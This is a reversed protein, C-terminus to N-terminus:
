SAEVATAKTNSHNVTFSIGGLGQAAIGVAKLVFQQDGAANPASPLCEYTFYRAEGVTPTNNGPIGCTGGGAVTSYRRNDMYYQEMKVRLDALNGSAEAFKSRLVYDSYAPLAISALIAVITVTVMVEVLTFGKAHQM